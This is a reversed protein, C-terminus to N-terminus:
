DDEKLVVVNKNKDIFTALVKKSFGKLKALDNISKFPGHENRYAIIAEAKKDGIGVLSKLDKKDALNINIKLPESRVENHRVPVPQIRQWIAPYGSATITILCFILIVFRM